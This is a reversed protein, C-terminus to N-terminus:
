SYFRCFIYISIFKTGNCNSRCFVYERYVYFQINYFVFCNYNIDRKKLNSESNKLIINKLKIVCGASILLAGLLTGIVYIEISVNLKACIMTILYMILRGDKLSWNTAYTEYGVNMINYTDSAYHMSIWNIYMLIALIFIGFFILFDKQRKKM